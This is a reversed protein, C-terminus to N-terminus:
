IIGTILSDGLGASVQNLVGVLFSLAARINAPDAEDAGAPVEITLSMLLVSVPQGALPTVGKRVIIKWVNKPVSTLRGTNPDVAGLTKFSKPRWITITFPSSVSSITVGTQTGGLASVAYQEGNGDPAVDAVLTYTPSTLGTQSGGTVPSSPNFAM